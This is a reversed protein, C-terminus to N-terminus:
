KGGQKTCDKQMNYWLPNLPPVFRSELQAVQFHRFPRKERILLVVAGNGHFAGENVWCGEPSVFAMKM